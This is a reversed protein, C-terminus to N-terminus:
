CPLPRVVFVPRRARAIVEQEVSGRLLRRVGARGRSAFCVVDVGLREAAQAIALGVDRNSVLEVQTGIGLRAAEGPILARLRDRLADARSGGVRRAAGPMAGVAAAELVAGSPPSVVHLLTVLGGGRVLSYGHAIAANGVDSFDTAVLVHRPVPLKSPRDKGAALPVVAVSTASRSLLGRSISGDWWRQLGEVQRSGVVVLDAGEDAAMEALREEAQGRHDEVRCRVLVDGLHARAREKLDRELIALVDSPNGEFPLRGRAGVRLYDDVPNNVYGLVVECRGIDLLTRVWRLALESSATFNYCVFVKLSRRGRLWARIPDAKRLVLTPTATRGATREAVSGLLWSGPSRHGLSSVVVFRPREAEATRVLVDDASGVAVSERVVVGRKRSGEAVDGLSRKRVAGLWKSAKVDGKLVRPLEVAHVLTLPVALRRAFDTAVDVAVAGAPSFDTGCLIGDAAVSKLKSKSVPKSKM